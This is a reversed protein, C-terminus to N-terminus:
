LRIQQQSTLNRVLEPGSPLLENLSGRELERQEKAEQELRKSEEAALREEELRTQERQTEAWTTANHAAISECFDVWQSTIAELSADQSVHVPALTQPPKTSGIAGWRDGNWRQHLATFTARYPGNEGHEDLQPMFLCFGDTPERPGAIGDAPVYRHWDAVIAEEERRREKLRGRHGVEDALGLLLLILFALGLEGLVYEYFLGSNFSGTWPTKLQYHKGTKADLEVIAEAGLHNRGLLVLEPRTAVVFVNTTREHQKLYDYAQKRDAVYTITRPQAKHIAKAAAERSEPFGQKQLATYSARLDRYGDSRDFFSHGGTWVLFTGLVLVFTGRFVNWVADFSLHNFRRKVPPFTVSM